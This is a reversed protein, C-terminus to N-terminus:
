RWFVFSLFFLFALLVEQYICISADSDLKDGYFSLKLGKIRKCWKLLDRGNFEIFFFVYFGLCVLSFGSVLKM